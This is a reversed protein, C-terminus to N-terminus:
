IIWAFIRSTHRRLFCSKVYFPWELDSLTVYKPDISLRRLVVTISYLLAPRIELAASSIALSFASLQRQRFGWQRKVGATWPVGAFIRM